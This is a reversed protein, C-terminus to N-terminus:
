RKIEPYKQRFIGMLGERNDGQPYNIRFTNGDLAMFHNYPYYKNNKDYYGGDLYIYYTRISYKTYFDIVYEFGKANTIQEADIKQANQFLKEVIGNDNGVTLLFLRISVNKAEDKQNRFVIRFRKMKDPYTFAKLTDFYVEPPFVKQELIQRRASDRVMDIVKKQGAIYEKGNAALATIFTNTIEKTIEKTRARLSDDYQKDRLVQLSDSKAKQKALSKDNLNDKIQSCEYALYCAFIILTIKLLVSKWFELRITTSFDDIIALLALLLASFFLGLNCLWTSKFLTKAFFHEVKLLLFIEIIIVSFIVAIRRAQNNSLQRVLYRRFRQKFTIPPRRAPM